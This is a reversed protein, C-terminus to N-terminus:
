SWAWADHDEGRWVIRTRGALDGRAGRSVVVRDIHAALIPRLNEVYFERSVPDDLDYLARFHDFAKAQNVPDPSGIVQGLTGTMGSERRSALREALEDELAAIEDDVKALARKAAALGLAAVYEPDEFPARKTGAAVLLQRLESVREDDGGEVYEVKLRARSLRERLANEVLQELAPAMATTPAECVGRASRGACRYVRYGGGMSSRFLAGGCAGCFVLGALLSRSRTVSPEHRRGLAQCVAFTEADILPEHAHPNPPGDSGRAEGLYVRNSLLRQVTSRNWVGQGSRGGPALEDLLRIVDFYNAGSARLEFARRVVEGREPDVQLPQHKERTYGFPVPGIHVGREVANRKAAEVRRAYQKWQQRALLAHLGFSFEEDDRATDIGEAVCVLRAGIRNLAEWLEATQLQNGRSLRSQEDVVIGSAHGRECEEIARGLARERWDKSGSVHGEFVEPALTAHNLEAWAHIARRQRDRSQEPDEGSSKRLYPILPRTAM